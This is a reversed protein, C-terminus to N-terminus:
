GREELWRAEVARLLTILMQPPDLLGADLVDKFVLGCQRQRQHRVEGILRVLHNKLRIELNVENGISLDPVRAGPFELLIGALSLDLAKPNHFQGENDTLVVRLQLMPSVPYRFTRRTEGRAVVKPYRLVVEPPRPSASEVLELVESVFIGSRVGLHFSIACRSGLPFADDGMPSLVELSVREKSVRSFRGQYVKEETIIVAPTSVSNFEWLFRSVEAPDLIMGKDPVM